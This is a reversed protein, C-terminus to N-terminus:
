NGACAQTKEFSKERRQLDSLLAIIQKEDKLWVFRDIGFARKVKTDLSSLAYGLKRWIALIQRKQTAFPMSDTIDIFDPKKSAAKPKKPSTFVAGKEALINVLRSLQGVSMDKRSEVGFENNLLQRFAVEDMAPLQKRGVEIKRYLAVRKENATM